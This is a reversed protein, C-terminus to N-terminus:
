VVGPGVRGVTVSAARVIDVTGTEIIYMESGADGERFIPKGAGIELFHEKADAM